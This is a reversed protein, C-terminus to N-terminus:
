FDDEVSDLWKIAPTGVRRTGQPKHLTFERCLNEQMRFLQGLWRLRRVKIVKVINSENHLKHLEHNHKSRWIGNEKIPGYIRLIMREFIRLMNEEKMRLPWSESECTLIRRVPRKYLGCPTQRGLYRSSLQIKLGYTARNEM